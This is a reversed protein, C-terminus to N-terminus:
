RGGAVAGTGAAVGVTGAVVEKPAANFAQDGIDEINPM